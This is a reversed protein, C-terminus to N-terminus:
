KVDREYQMMFIWDIKNNHRLGTAILMTSKIAKQSTFKLTKIKADNIILPLNKNFFFHM